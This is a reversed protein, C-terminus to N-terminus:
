KKLNEHNIKKLSDKFKDYAIELPTEEVKCLLKEMRKRMVAVEIDYQRHDFCFYSEKPKEIVICM